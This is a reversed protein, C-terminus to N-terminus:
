EFLVADPAGHGEFTFDASVVEGTSCTINFSNLLAFFVVGEPSGDASLDLSMRVLKPARSNGLSGFNEAYPDSGGTAVM